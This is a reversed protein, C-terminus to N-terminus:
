IVYFKWYIAVTIINYLAHAVMPATLSKRWLFLVGFILGLVGAGVANDVGQITHGFGFFASWLFLGVIAGGLNESFRMLVFARQIEEKLGGVYLSSLAMLILDTRDQILELLPNKETVYQPLFAQFVVSVLATSLFLFPVSAAGIMSERVLSRQGWKLYDLRQGRLRLLGWIIVLTVSSEVVLLLFFLRSDSLINQPPVGFLAFLVPVVIFGAVAALLIEFLNALRGLLNGGRGPSEEEQVSGLEEM